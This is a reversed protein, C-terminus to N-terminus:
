PCAATVADLAEARGQHELGQRAVLAAKQQIQLVRWAEASIQEKLSKVVAPRAGNVCPAAVPVLADHVVERNVPIQKVACGALSIAALAALLKCVKM